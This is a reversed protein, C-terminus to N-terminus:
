FSIFIYVRSSSENEFFKSADEGLKRKFDDRENKLELVCRKLESQDNLANELAKGQIEFQEIRILAEMELKACTDNAHQNATTMADLKQSSIYIDSEYKKILSQMEEIARLFQVKSDKLKSIEAIKEKIEKKQQRVIKELDGQKKALVNGEQEILRLKEDKDFMIEHLQKNKAEVSHLIENINIKDSYEDVTTIMECTKPLDKDNSTRVTPVFPEGNSVVNRDTLANKDEVSEDNLTNSINSYSFTNHGTNMVNLKLPNNTSVDDSNAISSHIDVINTTLLSETNEPSIASNNNLLNSYREFEPTLHPNSTEVNTNIIDVVGSIDSNIIKKKNQENIGVAEDLQCELDSQLKKVKQFTTNVANGINRWM